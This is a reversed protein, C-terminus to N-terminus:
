PLRIDLGRHTRSKLESISTNIQSYDLSSYQHRKNLRAKGASKNPRVASNNAFASPLYSPDRFGIQYCAQSTLSGKGTIAPRAAISLDPYFRQLRNILGQMKRYLQARSLGAHYSLDDVSFGSDAINQEVIEIVKQIFQEDPSSIQIEQPNLYVKHSFSERM